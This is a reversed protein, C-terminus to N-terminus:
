GRGDNMTNIIGCHIIYPLFKGFPLDLIRILISTSHLLCQSVVAFIGQYACIFIIWPHHFYGNLKKENLSKEYLNNNQPQNSRM